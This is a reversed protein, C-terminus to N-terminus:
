QCSVRTQDTVIRADFHQGLVPDWQLDMPGSLIEYQKNDSTQVTIGACYTQPYVFMQGAQEVPGWQIFPNGDADTGQNNPLTSYQQYRNCPDPTPASLSLNALWGNRTGVIKMGPPLHFVVLISWNRCPAPSSSPSPSPTPSPCSPNQWPLPSPCGPNPQTPLPSPEQSPQPQPSVPAGNGYVVFGNCDSGNKQGWPTLIGHQTLPCTQPSPTALIGHPPQNTTHPTPSSPASSPSGGPNPAISPLPSWPRFSPLGMAVHPISLSVAPRTLSVNFALLLHSIFISLGTMILTVLLISGRNIM